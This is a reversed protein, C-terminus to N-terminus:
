IRERLFYILDLEPATKGIQFLLDHAQGRHHTQHNFVHALVARLPTSQPAGSTTAYALDSGLRAADLGDALAVIRADEAERAARLGAFDEFLIADLQKLGSDRGEIRGLWIRDAVLIHNLTGHISGFFAGRDRRYEADPLGACADYLRANAWRNYAAFTRVHELYADSM